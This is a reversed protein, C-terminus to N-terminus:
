VPDFLISKLHVQVSTLIVCQEVVLEIKNIQQLRSDRSDKLATPVSFVKLNYFEYYDGEAGCMGDIAAM